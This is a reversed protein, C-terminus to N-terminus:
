KFIIFDIIILLIKWYCNILQEPTEKGHDGEDCVESNQWYSNYSVWDCVFHIKTNQFSINERQLFKQYRRWEVGPRQKDQDLCLTRWGNEWWFCWIGLFLNKTRCLPTKLDIVQAEMIEPHTHLFEEVERPYINEGGRIIM